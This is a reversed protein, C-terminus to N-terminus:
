RNGAHMRIALPLAFACLLAMLLFAQAGFREYLVGSALTVVATATGASFAYLAQATAAVHAPVVAGILRMCGLHFLAFTLGHLPQVLALAGLATSQTMVGWRIIGAMAALAAAGNPGLRNVLAPGIFFFVLIEAAVAESWLLSTTQSGIGAANWRIVTFTDHLAHSGYILAAVILLRRLPAIRSLERVGGLASLGGRSPRDGATPHASQANLRPVLASGLVVGLLLAAHMWVVATLGASSVAEGAILTGAIFAASASGRVWGYEFGHRVRPKACNVALADALTTVPALAAAHVMEIAVLLFFGQVALLGIAMCAALAACAALVARLAALMDAARGVAPGAVLRAVIGLGIVLGIQEAAAGRSQFFLPWFPSAVGGAAYMMAYLIIFASLRKM